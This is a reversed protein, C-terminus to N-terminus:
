LEGDSMYRCIMICGIDMVATNRLTTFFPKSFTVLLDLNDIIELEKSAQENM